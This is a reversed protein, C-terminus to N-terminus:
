QLVSRSIPNYISIYFQYYAKLYGKGQVEPFATLTLCLWRMTTALTDSGAIYFLLLTHCIASYGLDDNEQADLILYDLYDRPSEPDITDEHDKIKDCFFSLIETNILELLNYADSKM